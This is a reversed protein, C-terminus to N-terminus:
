ASIKDCYIYECTATGPLFQPTVTLVVDSAINGSTIVVCVEEINQSSDSPERFTYSPEEFGLM